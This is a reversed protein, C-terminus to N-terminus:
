QPNSIAKRNAVMGSLGGFDKSIRVHKLSLTAYTPGNGFQPNPIVTIGPTGPEAIWVYSDGQYLGSIIFLM